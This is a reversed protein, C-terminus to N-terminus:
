ILKLRDKLINIIFDIAPKIEHGKLSKYKYAFMIKEKVYPDIFVRDRFHSKIDEYFTITSIRAMSSMTKFVSDAGIMVDCYQVEALNEIINEHSAFSICDHKKFNFISLEKQTGFLVINIPYLLLTNILQDIFDRSLANSTMASATMHIGIVPILPDHARKKESSTFPFVDFFVQRPAPYSNKNKKLNEKILHHEERLQYFHYHQVRIGLNEFFSKARPFHTIVIYNAGKNKLLFPLHQLFDGVGGHLEFICQRSSNKFANQYRQQVDLFFTRIRIVEAFFYLAKDPFGLLELCRGWIYFFYKKIHRNM